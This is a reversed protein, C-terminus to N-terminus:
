LGLRVVGEEPLELPLRQEFAARGASATSGSRLATESSGDEPSRRMRKPWASTAVSFCALRLSAILFRM